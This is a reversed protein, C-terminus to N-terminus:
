VSEASGSRKIIPEFAAAEAKKFLEAVARKVRPRTAVYAVGAVAVAFAATALQAKPNHLRSVASEAAAEAVEEVMFM